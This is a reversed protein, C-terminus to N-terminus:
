KTLEEFCEDCVLGYDGFEFHLGKNEFNCDCYGCQVWGSYDVKIKIKEGFDYLKGRHSCVGRGSKSYYHSCESKKCEGHDAVEGMYSCWGFSTEKSPIAEHVEIEKLGDLKADHLIYELSECNTSDIDRFYLKNVKNM